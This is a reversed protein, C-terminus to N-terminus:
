VGDEKPYPMQFPKSDNNPNTFDSATGDLYVTHLIHLAQLAFGSSLGGHVCMNIAEVVGTKQEEKTKGILDKLKKTIIADLQGDPAESLQQLMADASDM